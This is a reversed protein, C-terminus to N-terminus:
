QYSQITAPGRRGARFWPDDKVYQPYNAEILAANYFDSIQKKADVVTAARGIEDKPGRHGIPYDFTVFDGDDGVVVGWPHPGLRDKRTGKVVTDGPMQPRSSDGYDMEEEEEEVEDPPDMVEPEPDAAVPPTKKKSMVLLAVGGLLLLPLPGM